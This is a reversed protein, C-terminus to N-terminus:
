GGRNREERRGQLVPLVRRVTKSRSQITWALRGWDTLPSVKEVLRVKATPVVNAHSCTSLYPNESECM